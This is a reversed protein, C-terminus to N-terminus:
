RKGETLAHELGVALAAALGAAQFHSYVSSASPSAALARLLAGQWSTPSLAGREWNSVTQPHVGLLDALGSQSVALASRAAKIEASTM